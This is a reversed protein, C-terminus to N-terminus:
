KKSTALVKGLSKYADKLAASLDDGLKRRQTLAEQAKAEDDKKFQEFMAKIDDKTLGRTQASRVVVAEPNAPLNVVSIELLRWRDFVTIEREEITEIHYDLPEFRISFGNLFGAKLLSYINKGSKEGDTVNELTVDALLLDGDQRIADVKGVPLAAYDDHNFLLIPNSRFRDLEAGSVDFKTEYSDIAGSSVIVGKITQTEDDFVSKEGIGYSRTVNKVADRCDDCGRTNQQKEEEIQMDAKM